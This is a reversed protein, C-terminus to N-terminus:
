VTDFFAAAPTTASLRGLVAPTSRVGAREFAELLAGVVPEHAAPRLRAGPAGTYVAAALADRLLPGSDRFMGGALFVDADDGALGFRASLGTVWRAMERGVEVIIGAAVVDATQTYTRFLLPALRATFQEDVRGSSIARLLGEPTLATAELVADTLATPAGRSDYAHLVAWMVRRGTEAGGPGDVSSWGSFWEQGGATRLAVSLHTGASIVMGLGSTSAGRLAIQADNRVMVDRALGRRRLEDHLLVFDEPWDAGALGFCGVELADRGVTAQLLAADVAETIADMAVALSVAAKDGGGARGWGMITGTGDALLCVTKSKGGDVGAYLGTM